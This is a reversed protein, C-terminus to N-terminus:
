LKYTKLINECKKKLHNKISYVIGDKEYTKFMDKINKEPLDIISYYIEDLDEELMCHEDGLENLARLLKRECIYASVAHLKSIGIGNQIKFKNLQSFSNFNMIWFGGKSVGPSIWWPEWLSFM